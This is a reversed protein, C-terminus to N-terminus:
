VGRLWAWLGLLFFGESVVWAGLAARDYDEAREIARERRQPDGIQLYRDYQDEAEHQM